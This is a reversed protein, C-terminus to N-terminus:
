PLSGRRPFAEKNGQHQLRFDFRQPPPFESSCKSAPLMMWRRAGQKAAALSENQLEFWIDSLAVEQEGFAPRNLM